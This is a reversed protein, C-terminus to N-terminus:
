KGSTIELKSCFDWLVYSDYSLICFSSLNPVFTVNILYDFINLKRTLDRHETKFSMRKVYKKAFIVFQKKRTANGQVPM